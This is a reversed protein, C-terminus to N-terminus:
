VIYILKSLFHVEEQTQVAPNIEKVILNLPKSIYNKYFPEHFNEPFEKLAWDMHKNDGLQCSDLLGWFGNPQTLRMTEAIVKKRVEFPLEHHLYTSVVVDFSGDSFDLSEANGQIYKINSFESLRKKSFGLYSPSMEVATIKAEPFALALMRTFTGTGSAVELIKINKKNKLKKKIPKILRRRMLSATGRFLLEVQHDYIEASEESLYGDTQHHFNRQYYEPFDKPDDAKHSFEKTKKNRRRWASLTSDGLVKALSPLHGKLSSNKYIKPPYFGESFDKSDQRILAQVDKLAQKNQARTPKQAKAGAIFRNLYPLPLSEITYALSRLNLFSEAATRKILNKM